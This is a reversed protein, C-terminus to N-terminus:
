KMIHTMGGLSMVLTEFDDESFNNGLGMMSFEQINQNGDVYRMGNEDYDYEEEREEQQQQQDAESLLLNSQSNTRSPPLSSSQLDPQPLHDFDVDHYTNDDNHEEHQQKTDKKETQESNTTEVAVVKIEPEPVPPSIAKPEFESEYEEEDYKPEEDKEEKRSSDNSNTKDNKNSLSPKMEKEVEYEYKSYHDSRKEEKEKNRNSNSEHHDKIPEEEIEDHDDDHYEEEYEDVVHTIPTDKKPIEQIGESKFDDEYEIEAEFDDANDLQQKKHQGNGDEVVSIFDNEYDEEGEGGTVAKVTSSSNQKKEIAKKPSAKKESKNSKSSSSPLPLPSSVPFSSGVRPSNKLILPELRPSPKPLYAHASEEGGTSIELRNSSTSRTEPITTVTGITKTCTNKSQERKIKEKEDKIIEKFEDQVSLLASAISNCDDTDERVMTRKSPLNPLTSSNQLMSGKKNPTPIMSGRTSKKKMLAPFASSNARSLGGEPPSGDENMM